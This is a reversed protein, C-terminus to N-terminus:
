KRGKIMARVEETTYVEGKDSQARSEKLKAKIDDATMGEYIPNTPIDETETEEEAYVEGLAAFMKLLKADANKVMELIEERLKEAGM